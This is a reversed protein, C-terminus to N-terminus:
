RVRGGVRPLHACRGGPPGAGSSLRLTRPRPAPVYSTVYPTVNNPTFDQSVRPALRARLRRYLPALRRALDAAMPSRALRPRRGPRPQERRHARRRLQRLGQHTAYYVGRVDVWRHLHGRRCLWRERRQHPPLDRTLAAYRKLQPYRCLYATGTPRTPKPLLPLGRRQREANHLAVKRAERRYGAWPDLRATLAQVWRETVGLKRALWEPSVQFGCGVAAGGGKSARLGQVWELLRLLPVAAAPLGSREGWRESEEPFLGGWGDPLLDELDEEQVYLGANRRRHPPLRPGRPLDELAARDAADDRERRRRAEEAARRLKYADVEAARQAQHRQQAARLQQHAELLAREDPTLTSGRGGGGSSADSSAPPAPSPARARTLPDSV